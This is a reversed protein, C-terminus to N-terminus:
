MVTSMWFSSTGHMSIVTSGKVIVLPFSTGGIM